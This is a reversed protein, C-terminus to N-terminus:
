AHALQFLTGHNPTNADATLSYTSATPAFQNAFQNLLHLTVSSGADQITVDTTTGTAGTGAVGTIHPNNAFLFNALDIADGSALGAVTGTFTSANDLKLVGIAGASFTTNEASAAGFELVSNTGSITATGNGSVSGTISLTGGDALLNGSNSVSGAITLTGGTVELLGSNTVAVNNLVSTGTSDLTGANSLVGGSITTNALDLTSGADVTLTAPTGGSAAAQIADVIGGNQDASSATAVLNAQTASVIQYESLYYGGSANIATWGSGAGPTSNSNFRYGAFIFDNANSTTVAGSSTAATVPVSGNSDFPSSTNAGSVAFANVDAYSATGAFSVTIADATLANAAIAYYEYITSSGSGAMARQHWILGATDSVASVSAGNQVIELIIVDNAKSTTLNVSASTSAVFPKSTFGNGDLALTGVGAGSANTLTVGTLTSTGGGTVDVTGANSLM